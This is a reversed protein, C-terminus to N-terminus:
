AHPAKRQRFVLRYGIYNALAGVAMAAIKAVVLLIELNITPAMWAGVAVVIWIVASQFVLGTILTIGAFSFFSSWSARGARFVWVRNVLYSVCVSIVTSTINAVVGSWNLTVSFLTFLGLDLLSISAGVLLYRFFAGDSSVRSAWRRM